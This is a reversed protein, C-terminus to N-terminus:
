ASNRSDRYASRSDGFADVKVRNVSAISSLSRALLTDAFAIASVTPKMFRAALTRFLAGSVPRVMALSSTFVVREVVFGGCGPGGGEVGVLADDGACSVFSGPPVPSFSQHHCARMGAAAMRLRVRGR